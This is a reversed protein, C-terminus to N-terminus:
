TVLFIAKQIRGLIKQKTLFSGTYCLQMSGSFYIIVFLVCWHLEIQIEMIIKLASMEQGYIGAYQVIYMRLTDCIHFLPMLLSIDICIQSRTTEVYFVPSKNSFESDLKQDSRHTCKEAWLSFDKGRGFIPSQFMYFVLVFLTWSQFPYTRNFTHSLFIRLFMISATVSCLTGIILSLWSNYLIGSRSINFPFQQLPQSM